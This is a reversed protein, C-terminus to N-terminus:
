CSRRIGASWHVDDVSRSFQLRQKVNKDGYFNQNKCNYGLLIQTTLKLEIEM